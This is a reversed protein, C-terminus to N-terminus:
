WKVAGRIVHADDGRQLYIVEGDGQRFRSALEAHEPAWQGVSVWKWQEGDQWVRVMDLFKGPSDM